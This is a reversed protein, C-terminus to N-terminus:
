GGVISGGNSFVIVRRNGISRSILIPTAAEEPVVAIMLNGDNDFEMLDTKAKIEDLKLSDGSPFTTQASAVIGSSTFQMQDTKFRIGTSATQVSGLNTLITNDYIGSSSLYDGNFRIRDTQNRIGTAATQVSSLNTSISGEFIGSSNLYSGNFVLQDTKQRIGTVAGQISTIAATDSSSFQGTANVNTGTFTLLDTNGKIGTVTALITSINPDNLSVASSKIDNYENEQPNIVTAAYFTGSSAGSGRFFIFGRHNDPISGTWGYNGTNAYEFFLTPQAAGVQVGSINYIAAELRLGTNETGLPVITSITYSM